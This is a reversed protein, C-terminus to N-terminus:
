DSAGPSISRRFFLFVKFWWASAHEKKYMRRLRYGNTISWCQIIQGCLFKMDFAVAPARNMASECAEFDTAPLRKSILPQISELSEHRPPRMSRVVCQEGFHYARVPYKERERKFKVELFKPV